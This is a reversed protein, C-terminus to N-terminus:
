SLYFCNNKSIHVRVSCFRQMFRDLFVNYITFISLLTKATLSKKSYKNKCGKIFGFIETPLANPKSDLTKPKLGDRAPIKVSDHLYEVPKQNKIKKKAVFCFVFILHFVVVGM